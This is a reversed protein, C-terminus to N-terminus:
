YAWIVNESFGDPETLNDLHIFSKGVGFRAFGEGMAAKMILAKERSNAQIDVARGTTHPGDFGTSSVSNNHLDCRYGSTVVFPVGAKERIRDLTRMFNDNMGRKECCSCALMSDTEYSFYDWSM